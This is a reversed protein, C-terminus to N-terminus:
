KWSQQEPSSKGVQQKELQSLCGDYHVLNNNKQMKYKGDLHAVM